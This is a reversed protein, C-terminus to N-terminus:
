ENEGRYRKFINDALNIIKDFDFLNEIEKQTLYKKVEDSRLLIDKFNKDSKWAAMANEQTIRYAEERTLGKGILALLVEQSFILGRTLNLNILMKEPYVMLNELVRNIEYLLFDLCICSDPIIVREVSSHSIDREHWLSVNEMASISFGRLLRAMGCIRETLVPNRKHPMASSGKQGTSFYEEAELVETRQLHRIETAIKEISSGIVAMTSIFFAHRDRQVVQNSVPEPKLGLNRCVATEVESDLHQYTGVAGSIKGVKINSLALNLRERHRKIEEEWLLFKLGFTIPEAHVGHSRGVMLTHRFEEAKRDLTKILKDIRRLVLEGAESLQVALATDLLDSSTMGMHIYRASEGINESLDTLFAIVDHKVKEEIEDIRETSFSAKKEIIELDAEPILGRKCQVRCVEREVIWWTEFKRQDTWIKGMEPLTYRKIM